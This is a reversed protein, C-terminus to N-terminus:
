MQYLSEELDIDLMDTFNATEIYRVYGYFGIINITDAFDIQM